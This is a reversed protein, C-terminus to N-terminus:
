AQMFGKLFELGYRHSKEPHFQAGVLNDKEFSACFEVGHEASLTVIDDDRPVAYYSHAFYFRSPESLCGTVRTERRVTVYNWGMHPVRTMAQPQLKLVEGSVIGLGKSIGESSSDFMLQMGLCLGLIKASGDAAITKLRRDLGRARLSAMGADFSGVGPVVV